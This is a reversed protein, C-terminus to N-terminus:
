MELLREYSQQYTEEKDRKVTSRTLFIEDGIRTEKEFTNDLYWEYQGPRKLKLWAIFMQENQHPAMEAWQHCHVCLCIGNSLDYRYELHSRHIIHHADLNTWGSKKGPNGENECMECVGVQRIVRSWEGDGLKKYNRKKKRAM